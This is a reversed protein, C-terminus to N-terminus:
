LHKFKAICMRRGIVVLVITVLAIAGALLGAAAIASPAEARFYLVGVDNAWNSETWIMSETLTDNSVLIDFARRQPNYEVLPDVADHLYASWAAGAASASAPDSPDLGLARASSNFTSSRMWARYFRVAGRIYADFSPLYVSAARSPPTSTAWESAPTYQRVLSCDNSEGLCLMLRLVVACDAEILRASTNTGGAAQYVARAAVTAAACVQSYAVDDGTNGSLTDFSSGFHTNTYTGAHDTLVVVGAQPAVKRFSWGSSPPLGPTAVDADAVSIAHRFPMAGAAKVISSLNLSPTHARDVHAFLTGSSLAVQNLEVVADIRTTNLRTFALSSRHPHLCSALSTSSGYDKCTFAQVDALWRRSGVFSWQEGEFLAFGIQRTLNTVNPASSLAQVAALVAVVQAMASEAGPARNPYLSTADAGAVLMVTSRATANPSGFSGWASYGGVPLCTNRRLCERSNPEAYMYYRFFMRQGPYQGQKIRRENWKARELIASSEAADVSVFGFPFTDLNMGSAQPNWDFPQTYPAFTSQPARPASSTPFTIKGSTGLAVIGAISTPFAAYLARITTANFALAPIVPAIMHDSGESSSYTDRLAQLAQPSDILRLTGSNGQKTPTSCGISGSKHLRRICARASQPDVNVRSYIETADVFHACLSFVVVAVVWRRANSGGVWMRVAAM